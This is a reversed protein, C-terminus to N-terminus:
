THKKQSHMHVSKHITYQQVIYWISTIYTLKQNAYANEGPAISVNRTLVIIGFNSTQKSDISM